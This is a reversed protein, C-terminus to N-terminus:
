NQLPQIEITPDAKFLFSGIKGNLNQDPSAVDGGGFFVTIENNIEIFTSDCIVKSAWSGFKSNDVIGKTTMKKWSIGNMSIAYGLNRHERADRGTYLMYYYPPIFIVSPEGLGNEDFTGKAGVDMIPNAISKEWHIGDTSKAIGLRQIGFKDQGLYYMFLIGDQLFLYPDAVAASDWSGSPGPSLVPKSEKILSSINNSTAMGVRTTNDSDVGHYAYFIKNNFVIASGNASIYKTDWDANNPFLVPNNPLKIWSVGDKSTAIGTKWTQGDYGSYYNVYTNNFKIVSPNLVDISDWEGSKGTNILPQSQRYELHIHPIHQNAILSKESLYFEEQANTIIPFLNLMLLSIITLKKNSKLSM